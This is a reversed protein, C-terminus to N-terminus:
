RAESPTAADGRYISALALWGAAEAFDVERRDWLDIRVRKALTDLMAHRIRAVLQTTFGEYTNFESALVVRRPRLLNVANAIGMTLCELVADMPEDVENGSYAAAAEALTRASGPARDHLFETSVIRELCGTQGCYCRRTSVPLRTHGLENGGVVCGRVPRGGVLVAAGVAGDGVFVLLIDDEAEHEHAMVWQVALSQLDNEIVLPRDGVAQVVPDLSVPRAPRTASSTLLHRSALDIFGTATLGVALLPDHDISRLLKLTAAIIGASRTVRATWHRLREGRLNLEAADVRGPQLALGLVRRRAPDIDLPVRPRGPGLVQPAGERLLGAGLLVEALDGVTNPRMGTREHLDQRSLPGDRRVLALLAGVRPDNPVTKFAVSM